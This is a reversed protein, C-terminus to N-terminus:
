QIPTHNIGDSETQWHVDPREVAGTGCGLYDGKFSQAHGDLFTINARLAHRAQASYLQSSPVTSSYACGSDAM